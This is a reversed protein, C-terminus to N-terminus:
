FVLIQIPGSFIKQFLVIVDLESKNRNYFSTRVPVFQTSNTDRDWLEKYIMNMPKTIFSLVSLVFSFALFINPYRVTVSSKLHLPYKIAVFREISLFCLVNIATCRFIYTVFSETRGRMKIPAKQFFIKM